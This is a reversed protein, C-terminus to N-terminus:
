GVFFLPIPSSYPSSKMIGVEVTKRRYVRTVSPCVSLRVSQRVPSLMYVRYCIHQRAYFFGCAYSWLQNTSFDNSTYYLSTCGHFHHDVSWSLVPWHDGNLSEVILMCCLNTFSAISVSIKHGLYVGFSWSRSKSFSDLSTELGLSLRSFWLLETSLVFEFVISTQNLGTFV